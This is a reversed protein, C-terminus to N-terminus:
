AANQGGSEQSKANLVSIKCRMYQYLEQKTSQSTMAFPGQGREWRLKTANKHLRQIIRPKLARKYKNWKVSTDANPTTTTRKQHIFREMASGSHQVGLNM